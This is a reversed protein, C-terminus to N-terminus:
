VNRSLFFATRMPEWRTLIKFCFIFRKYSASFILSFSSFHAMGMFLTGPSFLALLLSLNCLLSFLCWYFVALWHQSICSVNDQHQHLEAASASSVRVRGSPILSSPVSHPFSIQGISPLTQSACPWLEIYCRLHVSVPWTCKITCKIKWFYWNSRSQRERSSESQGDPILRPKQHRAHPQHPEGAHIASSVNSKWRHLVKSIFFHLCNILPCARQVTGFWSSDNCVSEPSYYVM